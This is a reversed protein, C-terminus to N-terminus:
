LWVLPAVASTLPISSLSGSPYVRWGVLMIGVSLGWRSVCLLALSFFLYQSRTVDGVKRRRGPCGAKAFVAARRGDAALGPGLAVRAGAVIAAATRVRTAALRAPGAVVAASKQPPPPFFCWVFLCFLGFLFYLYLIASVRQFHLTLVPFRL